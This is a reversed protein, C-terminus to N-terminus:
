LGFHQVILCVVLSMLVFGGLGLMGAAADGVYVVGIALGVMVVMAGMWWGGVGTPLGLWEMMMGAGVVVM